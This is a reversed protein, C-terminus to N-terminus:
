AAENGACGEHALQFTRKWAFLREDFGLPVLQALLAGRAGSQFAAVAAVPLELTEETGCRLCRQVLKTGDDSRKSGIWTVAPSSGLVEMARLTEKPSM